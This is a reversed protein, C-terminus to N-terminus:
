RPRLARAPESLQFAALHDASIEFRVIGEERAQELLRGVTARSVFLRDAIEAQTLADKYYLWAARVVTGHREADTRPAAPRTGGTM